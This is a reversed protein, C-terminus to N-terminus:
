QIQNLSEWLEYFKLIPAGPFSNFSAQSQTSPFFVQHRFCTKWEGNVLEDNLGPETYIVQRFVYIIFYRSLYHQNRDGASVIKLLESKREQGAGQCFRVCWFGIYDNTQILVSWLASSEAPILFYDFFAGIKSNYWGFASTKITSLKHTRRRLRRLCLIILLLPTVFFFSKLLRLLISFSSWLLSFNWCTISWQCSISGRPAWNSAVVEFSGNKRDENKGNHIPVM